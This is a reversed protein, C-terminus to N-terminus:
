ISCYALAVVAAATAAAACWGIISLPLGIKFEGMVRRDSGMRLMIVMMPVAVIGNVVAAWYLAQIPSIPSFCLAMGILMSVAIVSYFARAEGFRHELSANWQFAGSFAYATSGALVPVALLGTGIIGLTFLLFAANGAIPQLAKAADASSQIQVIGPRHLTVAASLMIFFAVINSIGMGFLTDVAISNFRRANETPPAHSRAIPPLGDKRLEEVEQSSQWFFLYPSITTGFIAVLMTIYESRWSWRPLIFHRIVDRWAIAEVFATAVYAFLAFTLWKLISVYRRYPIFIQLLLSLLGFGVAYYHAGGGILLAAADGMAAIDAGINITNALALLAIISYLAWRPYLRQIHTALGNGSVSGIRAAILQISVMLPYTFAATWLTDFGFKAGAQSYTAIGSPDDDAAGTILGPGISKWWKRPPRNNKKESM